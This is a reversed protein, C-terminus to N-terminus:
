KAGRIEIIKSLFEKIEKLDTKKLKFSISDKNIFSVRKNYQFILSNLLNLDSEEEYFDLKLMNSKLQLSKLGAKSSLFRILSINMLNLSAKDIDGYRDIFEETLESLDEESEIASIKKLAELKQIENPIYDPRIYADVPIDVKVERDEKVVEGGLKRIAQNLYKVYLEYGINGFHGSQQLGLVSGAGRIELDRMAIKYGSGFETYEKIARLRKEQTESLVKDKRYTMYGYALRNSRGVRGRLQYLQSLGFKDADEVIITNVNRIDLGTEIITTALLVDFEGDLFSRMVDELRKESMQGHAYDFEVEPVLERLYALEKEMTEVKNYVYYVQGGREIEKLIAERIISPNFEMVYTQIPFREEPPEDLVSIDRIGSLSLHLTRPIPTASLTLVDVNEKLEKLREKHKVGFRQEEDIILLGLDKFQVDKSLLRHTGIVFDVLGKRLKEVTKEQEKKSRFRSLSEINVPFNSFRDKATNYHQETLITTPALMAVQKGDSIAKFAARLAVETKGYGADGLLLREMPKSSEMDEKIDIAARLQGDTEEYHFFDEFDKQWPGDPSFQYGARERRRAYLEILQEAMVELQKKAKATTKKWETGTLKNVKPKSTDTGIYKQILNLQDIPIYLRESGSYGISLFDKKAGDIELNKVGEYIGIGHMEHVVYDGIKLDSFSLAAGGAEKKKRRSKRGKSFIEKETFVLFKFDDYLFGAPAHSPSIFVESSKIEENYNEKISVPVLSESLDKLLIEARERTGSFIVTKYGKLSYDKVEQSFLDLRKNFGALSRMTFKVIESFELDQVVSTFVSNYIKPTESLAERLDPNRFRIDAHEALLEGREFLDKFKVEFFSDASEGRELSRQIDEFYILSDYFYDAVSTLRDEMFPICLDINELGEDIEDILRLFKSELNEREEGELKSKNLSTEIKKKVSEKIDKTIFIENAPIIEAVEINEISNQSQKDFFRISDIEDGFFEIRIPNDYQPSFIDLIGGRSSFQGAGEVLDTVQYGIDLLKEKIENIEYSDELKLTIINELFFDAGIIKEKLAEISTIIIKKDGSVLSYLTKLREINKERSEADILYLVEERKQFLVADFGLNVLGDSVEDGKSEDDLVLVVSKSSAKFLGSVIHFSAEPILGFSRVNEKNKVLSIIKEFGQSNLLNDYLFNM